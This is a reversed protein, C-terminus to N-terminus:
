VIASMKLSANDAKSELIKVLATLFTRIHLSQAPPSGAASTASLDLARPALGQRQQLPPPRLNSDQETSCKEFMSLYCGHRRLHM